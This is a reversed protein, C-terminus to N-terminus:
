KLIWGKYGKSISLQILSDLMKQSPASGISVRTLRGGEIVAADFGQSKLTAVLQVANNKNSFCGVIYEFSQRKGSSPNNNTIVEPLHNEVEVSSSNDIQFDKASKFDNKENIVETEQISEINSKSPIFLNANKERFPNFDNLTIAGSQIVNTKMPIWVSYFGIPLFCAAIAAYKVIRNTKKANIKVIPTEIEIFPAQEIVEVELVKPEIIIEKASPVFQVNTLGYSSLLFNFYRNQEFCINKEKDLHFAGIKALEVKIGRNIESKLESAFDSVKSFSDDFSLKNLSAFEATLLGDNNILNKNFLLHKSPPIITGKNLDISAPIAQAVFGGFSPIIVCSHRLLLQCIIEEISFM